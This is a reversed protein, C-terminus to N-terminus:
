ARLLGALALSLNTVATEDHAITCFSNLLGRKFSMLTRRRGNIIAESVREDYVRAHEPLLDSELAGKPRGEEEIAIKWKCYGIL